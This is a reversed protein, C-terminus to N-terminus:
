VLAIAAINVSARLRSSQTYKAATTLLANDRVDCAAFESSMPKTHADRQVDLASLFIVDSPHRDADERM